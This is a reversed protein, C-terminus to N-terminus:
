GKTVRVTYRGDDDKAVVDVATRTLPDRYVGGVGFPADNHSNFSNSSTECAATRPNADMVRIPGQGSSIDTRVWYVLVGESCASSDNGQKSRVEVAFAGHEGEPVVVMKTGGPTEVPSLQYESTGDGVACDVQGTDLWGLRWKHWALFDNQLGWDLSMMDWQGALRDTRRFDTGSYLDPLGFIHGNEHNLVRYRAADHGYIVSVKDLAGGEDSVAATAGTWTVSLVTESAPPGANPTVLVNVLDFDKFDVQKDAVKLLDRMMQQHVQWGYGREIGYETFSRPLTFYKLVPVPEYELKGYSATAFWQQAAPFFEDYRAQASADARADPFDIFLTLARIRGSARSFTSYDVPFGESMTVGDVSRLACAAESASGHAVPRPPRATASPIGTSLALAVVVAASKVCRLAPSRRALSIAGEGDTSQKM